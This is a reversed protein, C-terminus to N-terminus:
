DAADAHAHEVIPVVERLGVFQQQAYWMVDGTRVRRVSLVVRPLARGRARRSRSLATRIPSIMAPMRAHMLNRLQGIQVAGASM